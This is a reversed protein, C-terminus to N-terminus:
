CHYSLTKVIQYKTNLKSYLLHVLFDMENYLNRDDSKGVFFYTGVQPRLSTGARYLDISINLAVTGAEHINVADLKKNIQEITKASFTIKEKLLKVIRKRVKPTITLYYAKQNKRTAIHVTEIPLRMTEKLQKVDEDLDTDEDIYDAGEICLGFGGNSEYMLSDENILDDNTWNEEINEKIDRIQFIYYHM